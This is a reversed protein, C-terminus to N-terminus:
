FNLITIITTMILAFEHVNLAMFIQQRLKKLYRLKFQANLSSIKLTKLNPMSFPIGYFLIFKMCCKEKEPYTM